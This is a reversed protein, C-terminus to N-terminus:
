RETLKLEIRRNRRYAVEDDRADLANNSSFGTAALRDPPIGQEILFKVVSIARATSLEWNSPFRASQIKVNDTHGSVQFKRDPMTKLVKAVEIITSKGESKVETRGSDFLIDNPLESLDETFHPELSM